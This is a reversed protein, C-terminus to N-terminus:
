DAAGRATMAQARWATPTLGTTRKFLRAFYGGDSFGSREAIAQISIDTEALLRIAASLRRAIIHRHVPLGTEKRVIDTLYAPSYGVTRAVDRLGIPRAFHQEIYARVGRIVAAHRSSEAIAEALQDSPADPVTGM